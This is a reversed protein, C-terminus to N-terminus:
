GGARVVRARQCRTVEPLYDVGSM